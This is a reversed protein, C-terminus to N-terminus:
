KGSGEWVEKVAGWYREPEKRAHAVHETEEFEEMRVQVGRGKAAKAHAVVDASPILLDTTSYLYVRPVPPLSTNLYDSLALLTPPRRLLIRFLWSVGYLALIFVYAPGKKWWSKYPATFARLTLSLSGIGPSSDFVIARAPVGEGRGLLPEQEKEGKVASSSMLENLVKLGLAGGNSFSHVLIPSNPGPTASPHLARLHDVAPALTRRLYSSPRYFSSQHSRLLLITAFPYLKNYGQVYKELHKLQADMWGLLVVTQPGAKAVSEVVSSDRAPASLYVDKSLRTLAPRGAM